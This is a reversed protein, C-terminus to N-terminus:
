HITRDPDAGFLEELDNQELGLRVRFYAIVHLLTEAAIRSEESSVQTLKDYQHELVELEEQFLEEVSVVEDTYDL